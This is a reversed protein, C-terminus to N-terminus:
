RPSELSLVKGSKVEREKSQKDLGNEYLVYSVYSTMVKNPKDFFDYFFSTNENDLLFCMESVGSM